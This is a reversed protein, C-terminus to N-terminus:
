SRRTNTRTIGAKNSADTSVRAVITVTIVIPTDTTNDLPTPLTVNGTAPDFTSGAPLGAATASLLTIGTPMPDALKGDYVTAHAPLTVTATYTVQEGITAQTSPGPPPGGSNGAENIASQVTKTIQVPAIFVDSPDSAAPADQDAVPVTTDVNNKPFYTTTGPVNTDADFSRVSATDVLDTDVSQGDPITVAYTYTVSAGPAIVESAPRNWVIASHTTNGTFSPQGPDGPNTCTGGDSITSVDACTIGAALVDWTKVTHVPVASAAPNSVDVRFVVQDGEAVQQHDVNPPNGGAPQGNVSQVGKQISVAPAPDVRFAAESRFAGVTGNSNQAELKGLNEYSAATTGPAPTDVIAAFRVQFVQHPGVIRTGDPQTAGLTWVPDGSAASFSIEDAPLTNDPGTHQSGPVYSLNSPLFDAVEPNVTSNFPPSTVTLEFCIRDGKQFTIQDPSLGDSLAYTDADCDQPTARPQIQKTFTVHLSSQTVSSHDTVTAAGSEGTGPRPNTTATLDVHNTFTDGEATPRGALSGGTYVTRMRAPFTVTTTDNHALTIPDFVVTFTGNANQTVSQYPVSPLAGTPACDAPSGSVFNSSGLPCLGDPVTDTIVIDSANAYESADIRLSYTAVNGAQFEAPSVSKLIRVDNIAVTHHTTVDVDTSGGPAVDGTYTGTVDVYNTASAPAGNQRTSPGTNNDLNAAQKLSAPDPQGGPFILTNKHLPVGAAYRITLTQGAALTGVDWTVRTYVGAPLGAPAAVTDVAAPTLCDAGVPPTASLPPAGPYEVGTTSNDVGGCGLFELSSPLYDTVVVGDTAASDSGKVTLTYVTTHDHVGRLLKGEPSPEAKAIQVATVTTTVSADNSATVAPNPILNGDADFEPETRPATSSYGTATDTFQSGVPYVSPDFSVQFSITSSAGPPLDFMNQWILVTSGDPQTIVTPDGSDAPTTSGPVYTVGPPLVDRFSVDYQPVGTGPNTATVTYTATSGAIVESPGSKTVQIPPTAAVSAQVPVFVLVAALLALVTGIATGRRRLRQRVRRLSM